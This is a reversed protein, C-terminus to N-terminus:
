FTIRVALAFDSGIFESREVLNLAPKWDVSLAIPTHPFHYELGAIGDIGLAFKDKWQGIHAGGGYYLNWGRGIVPVYREYLGTINFGDRWYASFLGEVGTAASFKHKVSLGGTAGGLRWGVGLNYDQAKATGMSAVVMACLVILKKM